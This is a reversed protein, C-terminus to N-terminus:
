VYPLLVKPGLILVLLIAMVMGAAFSAVVMGLFVLPRSRFGHLEAIFSTILWIFLGLSILGIVGALDPLVLGVLLQLVQPGLMVFEVWVTVLLADALSGTGGFIRGVAHILFVSLALMGFEFLALRLPSSLLFEFIPPLPETSSGIEVWAFLVSLTAVLALALKRAPVPVEEALLARAAQRPDQLTLEALALIRAALTM